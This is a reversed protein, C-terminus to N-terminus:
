SQYLAYRRWEDQFSIPNLDFLEILFAWITKISDATSM